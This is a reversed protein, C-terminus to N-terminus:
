AKASLDEPAVVWGMRLGPLSYAKSLGAVALVKDYKGFFTDIEKGDLEAGRYVEDSHIFADAEKALDIICNVAEESLISGTPNNPNCVSIMKTNKTVINKLEEFLIKVRRFSDHQEAPDKTMRPIAM